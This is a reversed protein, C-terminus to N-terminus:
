ATKKNLVVRDVMECSSGLYNAPDCLEDLWGDKQTEIIKKLRMDQKLLDILMCDQDLAQRSLDYIFDHVEQRGNFAPAMAMMVAESVILGKTLRLNRAMNEPYITLGEMLLKTQSLVGSTLIFAEPLVIWEIEWPGTSREHDAVMADMLAASHQRVTAAMSHIYACSIPNMKQPMTSSSGRHPVYKESVEGVETQMMLKIDQANKSLTGCLLALFAGVDAICDRETHWAIDPQDLKLEEALLKQCELGRDGLPALTGAAGGFELMLASERLQDLRRKHRKLTALLRAMKFGFTIPVAQQLNSRGAMPLSRHEMALSSVADMVYELHTDIWLLSDRIQMVTATDTVDQTTAGYHCFKGLGNECAEELQQVVGLVPYGILETTSKLKGMDIHDLTAKKRIEDYANLPILGMASQSKALAIEWDLYYKTRREDSWIERVEKTGFIDKFIISNVVSSM